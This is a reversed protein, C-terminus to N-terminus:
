TKRAPFGPDFVRGLEDIRVQRAKVRKLGGPTPAFYKFPDIDNPTADRRKLDGAEQPEALTIQGNQGFKVVRVLKRGQGDPEIALIDNQHLRLVKRATPNDKRIQSTWGPQHADFMSVVEAVWKGDKLEWVDYRYNSDGKYGKYARGDRDRIPIVSLPEIVRLRRINRYQDPGIQSFDKLQDEYKKGNQRRIWTRLQKRLEMDRVGFDEDASEIHSLKVLSLPIRHVVLDNGRRDKKCTLGYATENHLRGATADRNKNLASKAASGHDPRHSVIVTDLASKLDDRFTTWPPPLDEFLRELNEREARGAATSIQQLLSQTTIGALAADITHHRHDLRNKAANSHRNEVKNHDPLISNLGWIRRLMATLQGPIVYVQRGESKAYLSGLYKGALVSLYQTDKLHRAAFGGEKVFREMADPLFRRQKRSDLHLIQEQIAAWRAPDHGWTEYPTRDGKQRNCATHVVVKNTPSDDLTRSYPLIHDVDVESSQLLQRIGIAKGLTGCYPCYRDSVSNPALEKWLRILMRNTGTDAFGNEILEKSRQEAARTNLAIKRNEEERQRDNLKLERAMELVVEDPRGYRKIIENIVHRLQNLGIHVTPNTIRGFKREDANTFSDSGPPIDRDLIEGYYPLEARGEDPRRDSHDGLVSKNRRVAEDYDIVDKKLDALILRSATEGLRGYGEPLRVASVAVAAEQSLSFESSLWELLKQQDAEDLVRQVIQWRTVDDFHAWRLGFCTKSGFQAYIEDGLLDKRAETHKNFRADHNLKLLKALEAFSVKADKRKPTKLARIVNDRQERTLPHERGDERIRLQNVEEYLRREQFLPHAKPLRPEDLFTCQGTVPTKLDRQHFIIRRLRLRIEETLATAHHKAQEAWICDFEDEYHRRQPYFDYGAGDARLRVRKTDISYLFEGLTRARANAMARDLEVEGLKIKGAEEERRKRDAKRNSKFGRRQNLHFLVRGIEHPTLASDLARKRLEYPDSDVLLKAERADRPLLGHAILAALLTSRRM